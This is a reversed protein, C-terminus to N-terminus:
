DFAAIASRVSAAADRANDAKSAVVSPARPVGSAEVGVHIPATSEVALSADSIDSHVAAGAVAVWEPQLTGLALGGVIGEAM